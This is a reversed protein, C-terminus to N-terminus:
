RLFLAAGRAFVAMTGLDVRSLGVYSEMRPDASRALRWLEGLKVLSVLFTYEKLRRLHLHLLAKRIAAEAFRLNEYLSPKRGASLELNARKRLSSVM